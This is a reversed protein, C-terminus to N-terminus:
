GGQEDTEGSIAWKGIIKGDTDQNRCIRGDTGTACILFDERKGRSILGIDGRYTKRIGSAARMDAAHTNMIIM